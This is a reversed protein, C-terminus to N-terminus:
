KNEKAPDPLFALKRAKLGGEAAFKQAQEASVTNAELQAVEAANFSASKLEEESLGRVGTTSVVQGTGTRGSALALVDAGAGTKGATGRKVSLLRVWGTTSKAKVKLWAGKKELIDVATGRKLMGAPKADSYPQQRLTDDKLATGPEGAFAPAALLLALLWLKGRKM